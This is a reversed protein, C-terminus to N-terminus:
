NVKAILNRILHNKSEPLDKKYPIGEGDSDLFFRDPPTADTLINISPLWRIFKKYKLWLITSM